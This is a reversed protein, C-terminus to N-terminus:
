DEMRNAWESRLGYECTEYSEVFKNYAEELEIPRDMQM